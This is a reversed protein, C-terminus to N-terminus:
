GQELAHVLRRLVDRRWPDFRDKALYESALRRVDPDDTRAAVARVADGADVALHSRRRQTRPLGSVDGRPAHEDELTWALQRLLAADIAPDDVDSVLAAIGWLVLATDGGEVLLRVLRRKQETTFPRPTLSVGSRADRRVGSMDLLDNVADDSTRPDEACAVLWEVEALEREDAALNRIRELRRLADVVAAEVDAELIDSCVKLGYVALVGGRSSVPEWGAERSGRLFLLTREGQQPPGLSGDHAAIRGAGDVLLIEGVRADGQVIVATEYPVPSPCDGAEPTALTAIVVLDAASALCRFPEPSGEWAQVCRDHLVLTVVVIALLLVISASPSRLTVAVPSRRTGASPLRSSGESSITADGGDM